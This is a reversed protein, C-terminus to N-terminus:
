SGCNCATAKRVRESGDGGCGEEEELMEWTGMFSSSSPHSPSPLSRPRSAAAQVQPDRNVVCVPTVMRYLLPSSTLETETTAQSTSQKAQGQRPGKLSTKCIMVTSKICYKPFLGGSRQSSVGRLPALRWQAAATCIKEGGSGCAPSLSFAM